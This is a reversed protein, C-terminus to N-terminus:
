STIDGLLKSSVGEAQHRGKEVRASGGSPLARAKPKIELAPCLVVAANIPHTSRAGCTSLTKSATDGRSGM